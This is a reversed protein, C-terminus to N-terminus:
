MYTMWVVKKHIRDRVTYVIERIYVIDIHEIQTVIFIIINHM